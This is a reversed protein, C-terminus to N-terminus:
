LVESIVNEREVKIGYKTMKRYLTARSIGLSAAARSLMGRNRVIADKILLAEAEDLRTSSQSGTESAKAGKKEKSRVFEGMGCISEAGIGLTLLREVWNSVERVNGQWEYDRLTDLIEPRLYREVENSSKSYKRLFHEVLLVIDNRRERLPPIRVNVVNIRYFLDDRFEGQRIKELLDKSSSAIIRLDVPIFSKGGLRLVRKEEIVRLLKAQMDLPMSNLEDLFITGGDALEFKGPNGGRKAGTFAGEDYGFLESELLDRPIASCNLPIFPGDRRHSYNHVAQAFMEKGTGSEGTIIIPSDSKSAAKLIEVCKRFEPDEGIIDEFTYVARAGYIKHALKRARRLEQLILVAGLCNGTDDLIPEANVLAREHADGSFGFVAEVGSFGRHNHVLSSIKELLAAGALSKDFRKGRDLGTLRRAQNNIELINLSGDLIVLGDSMSQIAANLYRHSAYLQESTVRLRLQTEIAKAAAIVMGYSHVHEGALRYAASIDLVGVIKGEPGLIPAAACTAGKAMLTWHEEASMQVTEGEILAVTPATTGTTEETWFQGPVLGIEDFFAKIEGEGLVGLIFGDGDMLVVVMEMKKLSKHLDTLFPHATEWLPRGEEFRRGKEEPTVVYEIRKLDTPVGLHRSRAWSRAVASRVAGEDLEGTEVFREWAARVRKWQGELATRNADEVFRPGVPSVKGGCRKM